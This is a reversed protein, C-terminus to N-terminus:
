QRCITGGGSTASSRSRRPSSRSSWASTSRCGTPPGLKAFVPEVGFWMAAAAALAMGTWPSGEIVSTSGRKGEWSILGVGAVILGVGALHPPTLTEGLTVVAFVTAFLPMSAKIPDARSAGIRDISAAYFVRGFLTGSVGAATFAAIATPTIGYDPYFGVAAVPVLVVLNVILSVVVFDRVRGQETGLRISLSSAALALASVVALSVGVTDVM